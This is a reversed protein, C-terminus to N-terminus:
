AGRRGEPTRGQNAPEPIAYAGRGGLQGAEGPTERPWLGLAQLVTKTDGESPPAPSPGGVMDGRSAVSLPLSSQCSWPPAPVPASSAHQPCWARPQLSLCRTVAPRPVSAAPTQLEWHSGMAPSPLSSDSSPGDKDEPQSSVCGIDAPGEQTHSWRRKCQGEPQQESVLRAEGQPGKPSLGVRPKAPNSSPDRFLLSRQRKATGGTM